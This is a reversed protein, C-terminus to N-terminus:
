RTANQMEAGRRNIEVVSFGVKKRRCAEAAIDRHTDCYRFGARTQCTAPQNCPSQRANNATVLYMCGGPTAEPIRQVNSTRHEANSTRKEGLEEAYKDGMKDAAERRGYTFWGQWRGESRAQMYNGVFEVEWDSLILDSGDLKELFTGREADAAARSIKLRKYEEIPM